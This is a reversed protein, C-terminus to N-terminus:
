TRKRKRRFKLFKRYLTAKEHETKQKYSLLSIQLCRVAPSLEFDGHGYLAGRVLSEQHLIEKQLMNILDPLKSPKWNANLKLIHNMSECHNNKWNIPVRDDSKHIAHVYEKISPLLKETLYPGVNKYQEEIEKSKKSFAVSTNLSTLGDVGFVDHVIKKSLSEPM